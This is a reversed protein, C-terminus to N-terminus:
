ARGEVELVCRLKAWKEGAVAMERGQTVIMEGRSM